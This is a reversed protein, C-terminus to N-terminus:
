VLSEFSENLAKELVVGALNFGFTTYNSTYDVPAILPMRTLYKM